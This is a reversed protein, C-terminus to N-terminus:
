DHMYKNALLPLKGKNEVLEQLQQRLDANELKLKICSACETSEGNKPKRPCKGGVTPRGIITPRGNAASHGNTALSINQIPLIPDAPSERGFLQQRVQPPHYQTRDQPPRIRAKPIEVPQRQGKAVITMSNVLTGASKGCQGTSSIPNPPLPTLLASASESIDEDFREEDVDTTMKELLREVNESLIKKNTERQVRRREQDEKKVCSAKNHKRGKRKDDAENEVNRKVPKRVNGSEEEESSTCCGEANM